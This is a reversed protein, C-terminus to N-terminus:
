SRFRRLLGMASLALGLMVFTSPEPLTTGSLSFSMNFPGQHTIDTGIRLWDPALNGNRIWAQLDPSFPNVTNPDPASLWYFNGNSLQVQPVFFYHNAPLNFPTTFTVNFQVEEGRVAGEGGTFQNPIKNIGNLVSNATTFTSNLLSAGFTMNAAGSSRDDFEVDSPSNVRTPVNGSPPNTSDNPFVRYIEITVGMISSLSAGTPLLGTFTASTILTPSTLLFDDAAEIEVGSGTPRSAAGMLGDPAGTTFFFPGAGAFGATLLSMTLVAFKRGIM